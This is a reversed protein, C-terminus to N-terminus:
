TARSHKQCIYRTSLSCHRDNLRGDRHLHACDEDDPGLGHGTWADPQGPVWRRRQMVYPTQNVWEWKGTRGDTLGVWYLHPVSNKTVFDWEQDTHLIVLHADKTECWSKAQSWPLTQRSFFYCDSGFPVWDLPCCPGAASGNSILRELSCKLGDVKRRLPDLGSLQQLAAEVSSLRDKNNQISWQLPHLDKISEHAQQLSANLTEMRADLSSVEEEASWLRDSTKRNTLGLVVMLVFVVAVMVAPFLWRRFRLPGSASGPPSEKIWLACRDPDKEMFDNFM